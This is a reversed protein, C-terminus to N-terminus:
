SRTALQPAFQLAPALDPSRWPEDQIGRSAPSPHITKELHIWVCLRRCEERENEDIRGSSVVIPLKPHARRLARVMAIGGMSPMHLDTIIARLTSIHRAVQALGDAGDAAMIPEFGLRRLVSVAMNRVAPEDDVLLIKDDHGRLEPRVGNEEM